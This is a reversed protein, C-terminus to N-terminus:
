ARYKCSCTQFLGNELTAATRYNCNASCTISNRGLFVNQAKVDDSGVTGL